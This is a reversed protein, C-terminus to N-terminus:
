QKHRAKETSPMCLAPQLEVKLGFNFEMREKLYEYPISMLFPLAIVM